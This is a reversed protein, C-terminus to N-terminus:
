RRKSSRWETIKKHNGSLLIEPVKHDEYTEPRTYHPYEKIHDDISYSEDRTAEPKLVDKVLRIVSDTIVMAPIEGGTLVYEGISIEQDIYHVIREDIGEYHGCVIILHEVKAFSRAKEQNYTEGKASTLIVLRNKTPFSQIAHNIAQHLVDVRLVMGIGGGYPTDDVTKHSGIGFDRINILNIKVLHKEKANKVISHAFPGEFM